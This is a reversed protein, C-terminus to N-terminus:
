RSTTAKKVNMQHHRRASPRLDNQMKMAELIIVTEGVDVHGKRRSSRSSSGPCSRPSRGAEDAAAHTARRTPPPKPEELGDVEVTYAIGDV